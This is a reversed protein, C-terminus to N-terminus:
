RRTRLAQLLEREAKSRPAPEAISPEGGVAPTAIPTGAAQALAARLASRERVPREPRGARPARDGLTVRQALREAAREADLAMPDPMAAAPPEVVTGARERLPRMRPNPLEPEAVPPPAAAPRGAPEGRPSRGFRGSTPEPDSAMPRPATETRASRVGGELRDALSSGRDLLFSLDDRLAQSRDLYAQLRTAEDTASRLTKVGAEARACAEGFSHILAELEAKNSRLGTLRRNLMASYILTVVLLIAVIVDAFLSITV